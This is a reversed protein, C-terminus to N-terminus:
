LKYTIGAQLYAIGNGLDVQVGLRDSFYYRGGIHIGFNLGSGNWGSYAIDTNDKEKYTVGYNYLGAGGYLDITDPLNLVNGFHYAGRAGLVMVNTKYYANSYSAFAFYAGVSIDQAIAYEAHFGLPLGGGITSGLGLGVGINIDGKAFSQQAEIKNSSFLAIIAIAFVTLVNKKM